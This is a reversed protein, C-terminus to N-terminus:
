SDQHDAIHIRPVSELGAAIRGNAVALTGLRRRNAPGMTTVCRSAAIATQVDSALHERVTQCGSGIDLAEVIECPVGGLLADCVM